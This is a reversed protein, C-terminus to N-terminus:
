AKYLIDQAHTRAKTTRGIPSRQSQTRRSDPQHHLVLCLSAHLKSSVCLPSPSSLGPSSSPLIPIFHASGVHNLYLFFAHNSSYSERRTADCEALSIVYSYYGSRSGLRGQLLPFFCCAILSRLRTKSTAKFDETLEVVASVSERERKEGKKLEHRRGESYWGLGEAVSGPDKCVRPTSPGDVSGSDSGVPM